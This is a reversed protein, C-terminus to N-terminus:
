GALLGVLGVVLGGGIALLGVVFLLAAAAPRLREGEVLVRMAEAPELTTLVLDRGLGPGLRARGDSGLTPVGLAIAHEVSSIQEVRVRVLAGPPTGAPLREGLDTARGRSERPLVVLGADLADGDVAIAELGDRIGFPVTQRHEEVTRWGRGELVEIRTRRWVLPRHAADEFEAESDIRGDVRVYRPIGSRALAVADAVSVRPTVALLRGIRYRHGYSRVIAVAVVLALCGLAVLLLPTVARDYTAAAAPGGGPPGVTRRRFRLPGFSGVWRTPM